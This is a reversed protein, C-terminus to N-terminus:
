LCSKYVEMTQQATKDWSFKKAQTLGAQILEVRKALAQNVGARLSDVDQPDVFIAANGAVEKLSGRDSTVVPCGVSMAELVPLGFGEYLSPFVFVQAAAYLAPLDQSPISGTLSFVPLPSTKIVLNANKRPDNPNVTLIFETPLNYKQRVKTIEQHAPPAFQAAAALYVVHIKETPINLLEVIDIKTAQSDAIIAAAEQTVWHLRRRQVAVTKPSHHKPFKLITLDHITTVLKAKQAPPQQWDWAHFVDVPGVLKEVSFRHLRNWLTETVLPPFPYVKITFNSYIALTKLYAWLKKQGRLTSAFLIFKDQPYLKLLHFILERTYVGVGTHPYIVPTIDLGITM